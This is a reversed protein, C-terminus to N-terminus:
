KEKKEQIVAFPRFEKNGERRKEREGERERVHIWEVEQHVAM